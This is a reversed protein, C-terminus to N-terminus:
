LSDRSDAPPGEPTWELHATVNNAFGAAMLVDRWDIQAQRIAQQLRQLSGSSIKLAACQVREIGSVGQREILPLNSGCESDLIETVAAWQAQAFTQQLILKTFPTL